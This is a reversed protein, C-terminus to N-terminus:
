DNIYIDMHDFNDRNPPVEGRVGDRILRINFDCAAVAYFMDRLMTDVDVGNTQLEDMNSYLFSRFEIAHLRRMQTGVLFEYTADDFAMTVEETRAESEKGTLEMLANASSVMDNYLTEDLTETENNWSDNLTLYQDMTTQAQVYPAQVIIVEEVVPSPDSMTGAVALTLAIALLMTLITQIHSRKM